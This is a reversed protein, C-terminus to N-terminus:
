IVRSTRADIIAVKDLPQESLSLAESLTIRKNRWASEAWSKM